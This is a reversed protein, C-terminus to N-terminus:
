AAKKLPEQLEAQRCIEKLLFQARDLLTMAKRFKRQRQLEDKM